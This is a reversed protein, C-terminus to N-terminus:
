HKGGRHSNGGVFPTKARRQRPGGRRTGVLVGPLLVVEDVMSEVGEEQAVKPNVGEEVM